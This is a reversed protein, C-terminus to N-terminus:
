TIVEQSEDWIFRMLSGNPPSGSVLWPLAHSAGVAMHDNLQCQCSGGLLPPYLVTDRHRQRIGRKYVITVWQWITERTHLIIYLVDNVQEQSQNTTTHMVTLCKYHPPWGSCTSFVSTEVGSGRSHTILLALPSVTQVTCNTCSCHQIWDSQFQWWFWETFSLSM